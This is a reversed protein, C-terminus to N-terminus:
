CEGDPYKEEYWKRCAEDYLKAGIVAFPLFDLFEQPSIDFWERRLERDEFQVHMMREAYMSGAYPVEEAKVLELVPAKWERRIDRLRNEPNSTRGIKTINQHSFAYIFAKRNKVRSYNAATALPVFGQLEWGTETEVLNPANKLWNEARRDYM